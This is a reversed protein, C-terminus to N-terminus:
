ATAGKIIAFNISIADSNSISDRNIIRITAAGSYIDIVDIDYNISGKPTLKLHDNISLLSNLFVFWTCQGPLLASNSTIITGTPKNLSVNYNKNTLQTVTGGSGTGYGLAGSVALVNQNSDIYLANVGAGSVGDKKTAITLNSGRNGSTTGELSSSILSCRNVTSNINDKALWEINGLLPLTDGASNTQLQVIGCGDNNLTGRGKISVTTRNSPINDNPTSTGIGVDGNMVVSNSFTKVGAITENGTKSVKTDAYAETAVVGGEKPVTVTVNSSAGDEFVIGAVKGDNAQLNIRGSAM